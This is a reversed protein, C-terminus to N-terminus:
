RPVLHQLGGGVVAALLAFGFIWPLWRLSRRASGGSEVSAGRAETGTAHSM